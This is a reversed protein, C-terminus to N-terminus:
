DWSEDWLRTEVFWEMAARIEVVFESTGGDGYFSETTRPEYLKTFLLLLDATM